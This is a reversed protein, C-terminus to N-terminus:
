AAIDRMACYFLGITGEADWDGAAGGDFIVAIGDLLKRDDQLAPVIAYKEAARM